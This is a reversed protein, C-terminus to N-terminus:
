ESAETNVLSLAAKEEKQRRLKSQTQLLKQTDLNQCPKQTSVVLKHLFDSFAVKKEKMAASIFTVLGKMKAYTLPREKILTM